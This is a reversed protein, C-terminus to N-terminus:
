PCAVCDVKETATGNVVTTTIDACNKCHVYLGGSILDVVNQDLMYQALSNDLADQAAFLISKM